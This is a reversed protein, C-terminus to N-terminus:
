RVLAQARQPEGAAEWARRAAARVAQADLGAAERLPVLLEGVLGRARPEGATQPWARELDALAGRQDGAALRIRARDFWASVRAPGSAAQVREDAKALVAEIALALEQQPPGHGLRAWAAQAERLVVVGNHHEGQFVLVQGLRSAVAALPADEATARALQLAEDLRTRAAAFDQARIDFAALEHLAQLRVGPLAEREALAAAAEWLRRAADPHGEQLRARAQTLLSQGVALVENGM